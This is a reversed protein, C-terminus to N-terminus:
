DESDMGMDGLPFEDHLKSIKRVTRSLPDDFPLRAVVDQLVNWVFSVYEKQELTPNIETSFFVLALAEAESQSKGVFLSCSKSLLSQFAPSGDTEFGFSGVKEDKLIADLTLSFPTTGSFRSTIRADPSKLRGEFAIKKNPLSKSKPAPM